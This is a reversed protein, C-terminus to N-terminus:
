NLRSGLDTVNIHKANSFRGINLNVSMSTDRYEGESRVDLLVFGPNNNLEKALDEAYVTKFAVNDNKYQATATLTFLVTLISLIQKMKSYNYSNFIVKM